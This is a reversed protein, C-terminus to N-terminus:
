IGHYDDTTGYLHVAGAACCSEAHTPPRMVVTNRVPLQRPRVGHVGRKLGVKAGSAAGFWMGSGGLAGVREGGGSSSDDSAIKVLYPQSPM